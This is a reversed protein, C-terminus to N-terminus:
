RNVFWADLTQIWGYVLFSLYRLSSRVTHGIYPHESFKHSSRVVDIAIIGSINLPSKNQDIRHIHTYIKFNTAKGM